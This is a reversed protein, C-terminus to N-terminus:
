GSYFRDFPRVVSGLICCSGDSAQSSRPSFVRFFFAYEFRV